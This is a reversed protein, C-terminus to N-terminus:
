GPVLIKRWIVHFAELSLAVAESIPILGLRIKEQALAPVSPTLLALIAVLASSLRRTDLMVM